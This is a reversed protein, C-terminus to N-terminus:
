LLVVVSSQQVQQKAPANPEDHVNVSEISFPEQSQQVAM